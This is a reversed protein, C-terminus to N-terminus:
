KMNPCNNCYKKIFKPANETKALIKIKNKCFDVINKTSTALRETKAATRKCGVCFYAVIFFVICLTHKNRM